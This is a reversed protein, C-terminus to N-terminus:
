GQSRTQLLARSLQSCLEQRASQCLLAKNFGRERECPRIQARTPTLAIEQWYIAWCKLLQDLRSHSSTSFKVEYQSFFLMQCNWM